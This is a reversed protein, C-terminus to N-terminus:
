NSIKLCRQVFYKYVKKRKPVIQKWWLHFLVLNIVIIVFHIYSNDLLNIFSM